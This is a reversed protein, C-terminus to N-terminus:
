PCRPEAQPEPTLRPTRTHVPMHTFTHAQPTCVSAPNVPRQGPQGAKTSGKDGHLHLHRPPEPRGPAPTPLGRPSNGGTNRATEKRRSPTDPTTSAGPPETESPGWPRRCPVGQVHPSAWPKPPSAFGAVSGTHPEAEQGRRQQSPPPTSVWTGGVPADLRCPGCTLFPRRM